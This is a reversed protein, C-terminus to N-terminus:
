CPHGPFPLPKLPATGHQRGYRTVDGEERAKARRQKPTLNHRRAKTRKRTM